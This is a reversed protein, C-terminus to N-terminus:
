VPSPDHPFCRITLGEDIEDEVAQGVIVQGVIVIAGKLDDGM